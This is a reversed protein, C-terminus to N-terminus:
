KAAHWVGKGAITRCDGRGGPRGQRHQAAAAGGGAASRNGSVTGLRDENVDWRRREPSFGAMRMGEPLRPVGSFERSGALLLYAAFAVLFSPISAGLWPLDSAVVQYVVIGAVWALLGPAQFGGWGSAPGAVAALKPDGTGYIEHLLYVQRRMIFFDAALIGFLPVFVSGIVILFAEYGSMTLFAALLAGVATVVVILWRQSLRPFINQISVAASYIDAFANDTENVLIVLLAVLGGTMGVITTAM